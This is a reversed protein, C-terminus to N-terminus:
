SWRASNRCIGGGTRGNQEADALNPTDTGTLTFGSGTLSGNQLIHFARNDGLGSADIITAGVGAGVININNAIDLDGLSANNEPVQSAAISAAADDQYFVGGRTLTYTGAPLIIEIEPATFPSSFSNNAWIIAERLSTVDPDNDLTDAFTNVTIQNPGSLTVPVPLDNVDTQIEFAGLDVSANVIRDDGGLDDNLAAGDLTIAYATDGSDLAPNGLSELLTIQGTGAGRDIVEAADAHGLNAPGASPGDTLNYAPLILRTVDFDAPTVITSPNGATVIGNEMSLSNALILRHAEVAAGPGLARNNYLTVNNLTVTGGPAAIGGGNGADALSDYIVSNTITVDVGQAFIAGGADAQGTLASSEIGLSAGAGSIHVVGGDGNAVQGSIQSDRIVVDAGDALIAAGDGAATARVSVGDVTLSGGTVSALAGGGSPNFVNIFPRFSQDPLDSITVDAGNATVLPGGTTGLDIGEITFSNVGPLVDFLGSGLARIRLSDYFDNGSITIAHAIELPASLALDIELIGFIPASNVTDAFTITDGDRALELAELFSLGDGDAQEQALTGTATADDNENLATTVTLIPM